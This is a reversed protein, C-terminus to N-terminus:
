RLLKATNKFLCSVAVPGVGGPVPTFVSAKDACAPDIDGAVAGSAGSTGADVLVVGEKVMHPQILHTKGVGSVIIDAEQYLAEPNETSRHVVTVRAGLRELAIACPKGVLQGRGAVVTNKGRVDVGTRSLIELVGQAVPPVLAGEEGQEFRAYAAESLVDADQSLPIANLVRQWDLTDPIPLQVIVADAGEAQIASIIAEESADDPVQVVELRMGAEEAQQTKIRLYSETAASPRMTIARVVPVRPASSAKVEALIDSAIKKGDVIM